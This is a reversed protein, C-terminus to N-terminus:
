EPDHCIFTLNLAGSSATGHVSGVKEPDVNFVYDLDATFYGMPYTTYDALPVISDLHVESDLATVVQFRIPYGTVYKHHGVLTGAFDLTTEQWTAVNAKTWLCTGDAAFCTAGNTDTSSASAWAIGNWFYASLASATGNAADVDWWVGGAKGSFIVYLYGTGAAAMSSLDVHTSTSLDTAATTYDVYTVGADPTLFVGRIRPGLSGRWAEAGNALIQVCNKPINIGTHTTTM